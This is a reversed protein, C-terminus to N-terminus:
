QNLIQSVILAITAISSGLTLWAQPTMPQREPKTPVVIEAGPEVKPYFKVGLFNHTQAASGNAYIVYSKSKKAKQDFGGASAVYHKMKKGKIFHINSPYLVEGRARVTQFERPISLIDGERLILDHKSGPNQIIMELEIGISEQQRFLELTDSDNLGEKKFRFSLDKRRMAAAESDKGEFYETRRILTAGKAYAYSTLGGARELISSIREDKEELSYLGPFLAEGEVKILEQEQYYPNDRVLVRDFPMIEFKSDEDSLSLDSSIEFKYIEASKNEDKISDDLNRRAVEVFSKAASEKFGGALFILNEVTMNKMYDFEGPARVSGDIRIKYSDRLGYISEIKVIDRSKLLMDKNGAIVEQPSFSLTSKMLNDGERIIVGRKVFAEGRLGDAIEILDSLKMGETLQFFGPNFVAGEISVSNRFEDAIKPIMIEDGNKLELSGYSSENITKTTIYNDEYRMVGISGQYADKRFGGSYELLDEFTEGNILEYFAENKVRGEFRVRNLYPKVIIVDQDRLTINEGTGRIFYEYADFTSVLERDRFVEIKRLSGEISPGGADYLANFVTGFSNLPYTGPKNVRGIVHVNITKIQTISVDAYSSKGITSHIKKLRSIIKKKADEITIGSVHIPGLRPVRVNGDTYIELQYTMESAGWVEVTLLDGTGLVYGVPTPIDEGSGFKLDTQTFFDMGFVKLGGVKQSEPNVDEKVRSERVMLEKEQKSMQSEFGGTESGDNVRVGSKYALIRSKLESIQNESAGRTRALAMLQDESYGSSEIKQVLMGIQDDSLESVELDAINNLDIGASSAQMMQKSSFQAQSSFSYIAMVLSSLM